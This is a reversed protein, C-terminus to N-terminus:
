LVGWGRRMVADLAALIQEEPAPMLVAGPHARPDREREARLWTQHESSLTILFAHVRSVWGTHHPHTPDLDTPGFARALLERAFAVPDAPPVPGRRVPPTVAELKQVRGTLRM